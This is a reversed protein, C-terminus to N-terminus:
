RGTYTFMLMVYRGLVQNRTDQVYTDAVTRTASRNQNLLDTAALRIEGKHDALLKWGVAANWLLINQDFGGSLGNYVTNSLENRLVVVQRLILNLKVGAAHHYYNSNSAPQLTSRAINYDGQYSVTFDVDESINSSLVAGQSVTYTSAISAAQNLLGPTRAYALGSSLNLVSKVRTVPLAWTVFSNVNWAGDLNVPTVLQSGKKLAVGGPLVTDQPATFTSNGVYADTRQVSLLLFLGRGSARAATSFRGVLTHNYSQRLNPNGATLVLPNSNDLVNQLQSISPVRTSTRYFVRLNEHEGVTYNLNLFPLVAYFGRELHTAAPYTEEARLGSWQYAVHAMFNLGRRRVMLALGGNHAASWSTFRNSLSTDPRTYGGTAPDYDLAQNDSRSYSVSPNYTLQLLAAPGLPETYALRASLGTTSSSVTSQQDLTDNTSGAGQFYEAESRLRSSGDKHSYSAGLDASVTRGRTPFRHRLVLHNSLNDGTTAADNDSSAHSLSQGAIGYNDGTAESTAHNSQFYLRPLEVVSNSSDATWEMRADVRHNYNRGDSTTNQRYRSVSDSPASYQRDLAETNQNDTSNFFYSPNALLDKWWHGSYNGGVSNTQTIGNQQGVLFSGAGPGGGFGGAGGGFGYGGGGGGGGGRRGRGGGSRPGNAGGAFLGGGRNAANLVGLLDQASFNQQNTNNTLGILSLRHDGRLFNGNGGAIYRGDEGYGAYSKGFQGNRREPRLVVNITKVSQGDDFGTFEAQDSLKDFVQIKDVVEAPLSHIAIMPDTGFFPRGDVLVQQVTEGNTKVTSNDVTIGPMKALLEGADADPHTRYARAMFETTDARQVAPPPSAEVVSERLRVAAEPLNLNGADQDPRRVRLTRQLHAYGVRSADLRYEQLRLDTLQFTGDEASSTAHVDTTDDTATLKVHVGAVPARGRPDLIRGRLTAAPARAPLAALAALALFLAVLAARANV